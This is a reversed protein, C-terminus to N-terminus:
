PPSVPESNRSNANVSAPATNMEPMTASVSTAPSPTARQQAMVALFVPQDAADVAIKVPQFIKVAAHQIPRQRPPRHNVRDPNSQCQQGYWHELHGPLRFLGRRRFILSDIKPTTSVGGSAVM